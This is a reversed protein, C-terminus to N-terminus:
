VVPMREGQKYVSGPTRYRPGIVTDHEWDGFRTKEDMVAPRQGIRPKTAAKAKNTRGDPKGYRKRYPRNAHRLGKYLQGGQRQDRWVYNYIAARSLM